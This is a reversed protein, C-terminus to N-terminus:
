KGKLKDSTLSGNVMRYISDAYATFRSDHTIWLVNFGLDMTCQRIFKFLGEVYVDSLQSLSEDLIIFRRLGLVMMFYIRLIFSVVTQIGGGVSDRLKCKHVDSGVKEVLYFEATKLDGRDSIEIEISYDKDDFITKMGYSLLEQLKRISKESLEGILVKTIEIAKETFELQLIKDAHQKKVQGLTIETGNITERTAQLKAQCSVFLDELQNAKTLIMESQM